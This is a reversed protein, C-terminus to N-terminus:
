TAESVLAHLLLTLGVLAALGRPISLDIDPGVVAMDVFLLSNNLALGIFCLASWLLLRVRTRLYGRALLVACAASLLAASIYVAEPM